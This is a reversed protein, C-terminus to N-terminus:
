TRASGRSQPFPPAGCPTTPRDTTAAGAKSSARQPRCAALSCHCPSDSAAAARAKCAFRPPGAIAVVGSRVQLALPEVDCLEMPGDDVDSAFVEPTLEPAPEELSSAPASEPADVVQIAGDPAAQQEEAATATAAEAAVETGEAEEDVLMIAEAAATVAQAEDDLTHLSETDEDQEELARGAELEELAEAEAEALDAAALAAAAVERDREAAEAVAWEDIELPALNDITSQVTSLETAFSVRSQTRAISVREAPKCAPWGSGESSDGIQIM